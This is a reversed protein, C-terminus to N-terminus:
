LYTESSFAPSKKLKNIYVLLTGRLKQEPEKNRVATYGLQLANLLNFGMTPKGRGGDQAVILNWVTSNSPTMKEFLVRSTTITTEIENTYVQNATLISVTRIEFTLSEHSLCKQSLRIPYKANLEQFTEFLVANLIPEGLVRHPKFGWLNEEPFALAQIELQGQKVGIPGLETLNISLMSKYSSIFQSLSACGVIGTEVNQKADDGRNSFRNEHARARSLFYDQSPYISSRSTTFNSSEAKSIANINGETKEEVGKPLSARTTKNSDNKPKQRTSKQSVQAPLKEVKPSKFLIQIPNSQILGESKPLEKFYFCAAFFLVHISASLLLNTLTKSHLDVM